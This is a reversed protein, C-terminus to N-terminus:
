RSAPAKFAGPITLDSPQVGGPASYGTNASGIASIQAPDIVIEPDLSPVSFAQFQTTDVAVTVTNTTIASVYGKLGNLEVMGYVKPIQFTVLAGVVFAHEEETTVVAPDAQTIATINCIFPTYPM